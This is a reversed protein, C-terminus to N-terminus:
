GVERINELSWDPQVQSQAFMDWEEVWMKKGGPIDVRKELCQFEELIM